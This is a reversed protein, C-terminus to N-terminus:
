WAPFMFSVWAVGAVTNVIAAPLGQKILSKVDYGGAGMIIPIVATAMPTFYAVLSAMQICLILGIASCGLTNCTLIAIPIFLNSTAGNNMFQTLFMIILWFTGYLVPTAPHDGLLGVVLNGIYAGAGTNLLAAGMVLAGIYLNLISFPIASTAERFNHVGTMMMGIAGLTTFIWQPIGIYSSAILGVCVFIFIAYACVEQFHPLEKKEKSKVDLGTIPKPPADPAFKMSFFMFYLVMVIVVPAKAIFPDLMQFEDGHSYGAAALYGNYKAFTVAGSGLPIGTQDALLCVGLPFMVKSPSVNNEECVAVALPYVIAIRGIAGPLFFGLILNVLMFMRICRVFNGGSVKNLLSAINGVAKTKAFGQAVIMMTGMIIANSDAFKSLATDADVCGTLVLLVAIFIAVCGYDFKDLAMIALMLVWIGLCIAIEPTVINWREREKQHKQQGVSPELPKASIFIICFFGM